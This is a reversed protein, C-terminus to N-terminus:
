ESSSICSGPREMKVAHIGSTLSHLSKAVQVPFVSWRTVNSYVVTAPADVLRFQCNGATAVHISNALDCRGERM